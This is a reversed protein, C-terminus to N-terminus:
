SIYYWALNVRGVDKIVVQAQVRCVMDATEWDKWYVHLSGDDKTEIKRVAWLNHVRRRQEAQLHRDDSLSASMSSVSRSSHMDLPTGSIVLKKKRRRQRGTLSAFFSQPRPAPVLFSPSPTSPSPLPLTPRPPSGPSMPREPIDLHLPEHLAPLPPPAARTRPPSPPVDVSLDEPVCSPSTVAFPDFSDALRDVPTSLMSVTSGTSSDSSVLSPTISIKTPMTFSPRSSTSSSGDHSDVRRIDLVDSSGRPTNPPPLPKSISTTRSRGAILSLFRDRKKAKSAPFSSADDLSVQTIRPHSAVSDISWRSAPESEGEAASNQPAIPPSQGLEVATAACMPSPLLMAAVSFSPSPMSALEALHRLQPSSASTSLSPLSPRDKRTPSSCMPRSDPCGATASSSRLRGTPKPVPIDQVPDTLYVATRKEAESEREELLSLTSSISPYTAHRTNTSRSAPPSGTLSLRSTRPKPSSYVPSPPMPPSSRGSAAARLAMPPSSVSTRISRAAPSPPPVIPLSPRSRLSRPLTPLPKDTEMRPSPLLSQTRSRPTSPTSQRTSFLSPDYLHAACAEEDEEVDFLDPISALSDTAKEDPWGYGSDVWRATDYAPYSDSFHADDDGYGLQQLLELKADLERPSAVFASRTLASQM